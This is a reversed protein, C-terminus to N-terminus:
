IAKRVDDALRHFGTESVVRLLDCFNERFRADALYQALLGQFECALLSAERDEGKNIGQGSKGALHLVGPIPCLRVLFCTPQKLKDRVLFGFLHNLEGRSQESERVEPTSHGM